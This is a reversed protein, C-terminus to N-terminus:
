SVEFREIQNRLRRIVRSRAVYVQDRTMGTLKAVEAIPRNEFSSLRFADWTHQHFQNRVVSTAWQLVTQRYANQEADSVRWGQPIGDVHHSEIEEWGLEDCQPERERKRMLRILNFKAIRFLWTRFKARDPDPRWKKISKTIAILVEQVLEVADSDQLGKRRAFRYVFPQYIAVFENWAHADAEDALRLILSVRTDPIQNM